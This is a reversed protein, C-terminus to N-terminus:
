IKLFALQCIKWIFVYLQVLFKATGTRWAVNSLLICIKCILFFKKYVLFAICYLSPFVLHILPCFHDKPSTRKRFGLFLAAQIEVARPAWKRPYWNGSSKPTHTYRSILSLIFFPVLMYFCTPTPCNAM